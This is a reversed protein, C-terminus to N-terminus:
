YVGVIRVYGDKVDYEDENVLDDDFSTFNYGIGIYFIEKIPILLEILYGSKENDFTKQTLTRYETKLKWERYFTWTLANIWLYTKSEQWNRLGVKEEMNRFSFTEGLELSKLIEISIGLSYVEKKFESEEIFNFDRSDPYLDTLYVYKGLVNIFSYDVPRYAIGLIVDTFDFKDYDTEPNKAYGLG